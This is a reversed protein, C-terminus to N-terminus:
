TRCHGPQSCEDASRCYDQWPRENRLYSCPTDLPFSTVLLLERSPYARSAILPRIPMKGWAGHGMSKICRVVSLLSFLGSMLYHSSLDHNLDGLNFRSLNFRQTELDDLFLCAVVTQVSSLPCYYAPENMGSGIKFKNFVGAKM